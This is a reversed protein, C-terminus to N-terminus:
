GYMSEIAQEYQNIVLPRKIKLTPTLLGNEVTWPELMPTIRRVKAYGPFNHLCESIKKILAKNLKDNSLQSKDTPDLNHAKALDEWHEPNIVLLASLYPKAEGIM